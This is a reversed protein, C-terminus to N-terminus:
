RVLWPNTTTFPLCLHLRASTPVLSTPHYQDDAIRVLIASRAREALNRAKPYTRHNPLFTLSVPAAARCPAPTTIITPRSTGTPISAPIPDARKCSPPNLPSAPDQQFARRHIATATHPTSPLATQITGLLVHPMAMATVNHKAAGPAATWPPSTPIPRSLTTSAAPQDQLVM